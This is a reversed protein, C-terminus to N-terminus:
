PAPPERLRFPRADSAWAAAEADARQGAFVTTLLPLDLSGQEIGARRASMVTAADVAEGVSTVRM